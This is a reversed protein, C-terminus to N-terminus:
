ISRACDRASSDAAGTVRGCSRSHKPQPLNWITGASPGSMRDSQTRQPVASRRVRASGILWVRASVAAASTSNPTTHSAMSIFTEVAPMSCSVVSSDPGMSSTLRPRHGSAMATAKVVAIAGAPLNAPM